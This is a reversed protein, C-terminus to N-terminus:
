VLRGSKKGRYKFVSIRIIIVALVEAGNRGEEGGKQGIKERKEGGAREKPKYFQLVGGIHAIYLSYCFFFVAERQPLIGASAKMRPLLGGFGEPAHGRGGRARGGSRAKVTERGCM